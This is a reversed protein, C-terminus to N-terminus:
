SATVQRNAEAESDRPIWWVWERPGPGTLQRYVIRTRRRDAEDRVSFAVVAYARQQRASLRLLQQREGPTVRVTDDRKVQVFVIEDDHFAVIDAAGRSVSSLVTDYGRAGLDDAVQIEIRRGQRYTNVM